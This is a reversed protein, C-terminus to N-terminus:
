TLIKTKKEKTKHLVMLQSETMVQCATYACLPKMELQRNLNRFFKLGSILILSSIKNRYDFILYYINLIFYLIYFIFYLICFVFYLIISIIFTMMGTHRELYELPVEFDTLVKGEGIRENPVLFAGILHTTAKAEPTSEDRKKKAKEKPVVLIVKFIHTPVAM